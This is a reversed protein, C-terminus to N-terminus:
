DAAQFDGFDDEITDDSSQNEKSLQERSQSETATHPTSSGNTTGELSLNSPFDAPPRQDAIVPSLPSPPPPPPKLCITPEKSGKEDLSLNNLGQEFFKSKLSQTSKQLEILWLWWVKNSGLFALPVLFRVNKIQLVLTEGEKLSYDVSSAKQYHQEM